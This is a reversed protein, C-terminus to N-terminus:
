PTPPHRLARADSWLGRALVLAPAHRAFPRFPISRAPKTPLPLPSGEALAQALARGLATTFAVGRGNCGVAGILGPQLEALLPLADTTMAATGQWAHALRTEPPLRLERVARQLIKKPLRAGAGMPVLAMGGSILRNESDLRWTFINTRTDSAPERNPAIRAVTESSLPTTAIQHVTLPLVARGLPRAAGLTGANTALLVRSAHLPGAATHLTWGDTARSLASVPTEEHLLAGANEALRALGLAYALPNIMGGSADRLAGHYLTIGSRAAMARADLWKVPRGLAQWDRVRAQLAQAMAASHAPQLWGNQEAQTGLGARRALDFVMDGGQAVMDLLRAGAEAGLRARIMVPDARSFHPVVFGANRGSAGWGIRHAELLRVSVGAQALHLACSLGLFGGGIIAVDTTAGAKPGPRPAPQATTAHWLTAPMNM